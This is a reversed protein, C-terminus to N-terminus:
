QGILKEYEAWLHDAEEGTAARMRGLLQKVQDDHSRTDRHQWLREILDETSTGDLDHVDMVVRANHAGDVTSEVEDHIAGAWARQSSAAVDTRESIAAAARIIAASAEDPFTHDQEDALVLVAAIPDSMVRHAVRRQLATWGDLVRGTGNSDSRRQPSGAPTPAPAGYRQHLDRLYADRMIPDPLRKVLETMETVTVSQAEPTPETAAAMQEILWRTLPIPEQLAARLAEPGSQQYLERPDLGTPLPTVYCRNAVQISAEWAKRAAKAGALDGDFCFVIRTSQPAGRLLLGLHDEGFATGCTAVTEVVGSLRAAMVDTYGELVLVRGTKHVAKRATNWGYLVQRKHYLLGEPSNVYKGEIPDEARVKRAGFGVLKGHQDHIPWTLRGRFMAYVSNDDRRRLVGADVAADVTHGHQSLWEQLAKGGQPAYGCEFAAADEGTFGGNTLEDRGPQAEPASLTRKFLDQASDIAAQAKARREIAAQADPDVTETLSVRYKDALYRVADPFSLHETERVFGITDGGAGCGFCHYTGEAPRVHFSPTREDHFPCLGKWSSGSRRLEVGFDSVLALLDAQERVRALDDDAFRRPTPSM